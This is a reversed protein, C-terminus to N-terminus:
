LQKLIEKRKEEYEGATILRQDYLARLQEMREQVDQEPTTNEGERPRLGGCKTKGQSRNKGFLNFVGMAVAGAGGLLFVMRLTGGPLEGSLALLIVAAGIVIQMVGIGRRAPGTPRNYGYHKM